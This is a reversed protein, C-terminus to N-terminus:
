LLSTGSYGIRVVSGTPLSGILRDTVVEVMVVEVSKATRTVKHLTVRGLGPVTVVTNPKVPSSIAPLGTIRLGVFRSTDTVVPTAGASSQSVSTEAIITDASILGSLVRPAGVTATVESKRSTATITSRVSTTTTGTSVVGRVGATAVTAQGSGGTCPPYALATRSSAVAGNALNASTAYGMGSVLGVVPRSLSTTAVGVDIRSGIPLGLSNNATIVVRLATTGVRWENGAFAKTQQNLYVTGLAAGTSTRLTIASNPAPSANLAQGGIKLGLLESRNGGSYTGTAGLNATSAATVADARVLGGLLNVAGTRATSRSTKSASTASTSASTSTSGVSGVAPVTAAATTGTVTRGFTTTCGISALATPGSRVIGDVVAYTGYALASVGTAPAAPTAAAVPAASLPAALGSVAAAVLITRLTGNKM